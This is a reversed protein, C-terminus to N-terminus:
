DDGENRDQQQLTDGPKAEEDLTLRASRAADPRLRGGGRRWRRLPNEQRSAACVERISLVRAAMAGWEFRNPWSRWCRGTTRVKSIVCPRSSRPRGVRLCSMAPPLAS